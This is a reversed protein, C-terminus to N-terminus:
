VNRKPDPYSDLPQITASYLSGSVINLINYNQVHEIDEIPHSFIRVDRECDQLVNRAAKEVSRVVLGDTPTTFLHIPDLSIAPRQM